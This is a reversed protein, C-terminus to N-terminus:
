QNEWYKDLRTEYPEVNTSVILWGPLDNWNNIICIPFSYLRTSLVARTKYLKYSNGRTHNGERKTFMNGTCDPDDINKVIKFTKRMDGCSRQYALTPVKLKKLRDAYDLNKLEPVM